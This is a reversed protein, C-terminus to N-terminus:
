RALLRCAKGVPSLHLVNAGPPPRQLLRGGGGGGGGGRGCWASGGSEGGQQGPQDDRGHKRQQVRRTVFKYAVHLVPGLRVLHVVRLSRAFMAARRPMHDLLLGQLQDGPVFRAPLGRQGSTERHQILMLLPLLILVLHAPSATPSAVTVYYEVM